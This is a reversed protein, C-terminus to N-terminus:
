FDRGMAAYVEPSETPSIIDGVIECTNKMAEFAFKRKPEPKVRSLYAVPKGRKTIVVTKGRLNVEDLVALCKSKFETASMTKEAAPKM